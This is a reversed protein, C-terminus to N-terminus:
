ESKSTKDCIDRGALASAYLKSRRDRTMCLIKRAMGDRAVYGRV